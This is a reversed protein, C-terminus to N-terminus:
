SVLQQQAPGLERDSEGSSVDEYAFRGYSSSQEYGFPVDVSRQRFREKVRREVEIASCIVRRRSYPRVHPNGFGPPLNRTFFALLSPKLTKPARFYTTTTPRLSMAVLPTTPTSRVSMAVLPTTTNRIYGRFIPSYQM